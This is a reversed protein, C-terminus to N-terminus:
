CRILWRLKQLSFGVKTVARPREEGYVGFGCLFLVVLHDLAPLFISIADEDKHTRANGNVIKQAYVPVSYVPKNEAATAASRATVM